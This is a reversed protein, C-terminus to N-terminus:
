ARETKLQNVWNTLTPIVKSEVLYEEKPDSQSPFRGLLDAMQFVWDSLPDQGAEKELKGVEELLPALSILSEWITELEALADNAQKLDLHTLAMLLRIEQNAPFYVLAMRCLELANVPQQHSRFLKIMSVLIPVSPEIKIALPYGPQVDQDTTIVISNMTM